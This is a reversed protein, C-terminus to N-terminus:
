KKDSRINQMTIAAEKTEKGIKKEDLRKKGKKVKQNQSHARAHSNRKRGNADHTMEKGSLLESLAHLNHAKGRTKLKEIVTNQLMNAEEIRGEKLANKADLRLIRMKKRYTEVITASGWKQVVRLREMELYAEDEKDVVDSLCKGDIGDGGGDGSSGERNVDDRETADSDMTVKSDSSAAIVKSAGKGKKVYKQGRGQLDIRDREKGTVVTTSTDLEAEQKQESLRVSESLKSSANRGKRDYKSPDLRTYEGVADRLYGELSAPTLMHPLVDMIDDQAADYADTANVDANSLTTLPTYEDPFDAISHRTRTKVRINNPSDRPSPLLKGASLMRLRLQSEMKAVKQDSTSTNANSNNSINKNDKKGVSHGGVDIKDAGDAGNAEGTIVQLEKGDDETAAGAWSPRRSASRSVSSSTSTSLIGSEDLGGSETIKDKRMPVSTEEGVVRYSKDLMNLLVRELESLTDALRLGRPEPIGVKICLSSVGAITENCLHERLVVKKQSTFLSKKAHELSVEVSEINGDNQPVHVGAVMGRQLVKRLRALLTVRDAREVEKERTLESMLGEKKAQDQFTTLIKEVSDVGTERFIRDAADKYPALRKDHYMQEAMLLVSRKAQKMSIKKMNATRAVSQAKHAVRVQSAKFAELERQWIEDDAVIRHSKELMSRHLTRQKQLKRHLARVEKKLRTEVKKQASLEDRLEKEQNKANDVLEGMSEM